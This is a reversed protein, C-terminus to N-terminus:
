RQSSFALVTPELHLLPFCSKSRKREVEDEENITEDASFDPGVVRHFANLLITKFSKRLESLNLQCTV